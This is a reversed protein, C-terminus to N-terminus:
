PLEWTMEAPDGIGQVAMEAAMPDVILVVEGGERLVCFGHEGYNLPEMGVPSHLVGEVYELPLHDLLELTAQARNWCEGSGLPYDAVTGGAAYASLVAAFREGTIRTTM